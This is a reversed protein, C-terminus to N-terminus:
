TLYRHKTYRTTITTLPKLWETQRLRQDAGVKTSDIRPLRNASKTNINASQHGSRWDRRDDRRRAWPSVAVSPDNVTREGDFGRESTRRREVALNPESAAVCPAHGAHSTLGARVPQRRTAGLYTPGNTM